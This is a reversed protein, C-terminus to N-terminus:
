GEYDTRLLQITWGQTVALDYNYNRLTRVVKQKTETFYVALIKSYEDSFRHTYQFRGLSKPLVPGMLDIYVLGLSQTVRHEAKKPRPYQKSKNLM